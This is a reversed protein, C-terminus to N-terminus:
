NTVVFIRVINIIIAVAVFTFFTFKKRLVGNFVSPHSASTYSWENKVGADSPPRHDAEREQRKFGRPLDWTRM